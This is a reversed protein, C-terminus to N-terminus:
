GARSGICQGGYPCGILYFLNKKVYVFSYCFDHWLIFEFYRLSQIKRLLAFFTMRTRGNAHSQRTDNNAHHNHNDRNTDDYAELLGHRLFHCAKACMNLKDGEIIIVGVVQLGYENGFGM